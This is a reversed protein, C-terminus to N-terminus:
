KTSANYLCQVGVTADTALVSREEINMQGLIPAYGGCNPRGHGVDEGGTPHRISGDCGMHCRKPVLRM